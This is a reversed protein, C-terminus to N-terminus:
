EKRCSHRCLVFGLTDDKGADDIGYRVSNRRIMEKLYRDAGEMGNSM